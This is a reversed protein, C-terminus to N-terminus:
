IPPLKTDSEIRSDARVREAMPGAEM